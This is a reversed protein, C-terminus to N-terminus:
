ELNNSGGFFKGSMNSTGIKSEWFHAVLMNKTLFSLCEVLGWKGGMSFSMGKWQAEMRGGAERAMKAIILGKAANSKKSRRLLFNSLKTTSRSNQFFICTSSLFVNKCRTNFDILVFLLICIRIYVTVSLFMSIFLTPKLCTMNLTLFVKAALGGITLCKCFGPLTIKSFFSPFYDFTTNQLIWTEGTPM